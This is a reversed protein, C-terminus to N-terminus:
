SLQVRRALSKPVGSAASSKVSIQRKTALGQKKMSLELRRSVDVKVGRKAGGSESGLTVVGSLRSALSKPKDKAAASAPKKGAGAGQTGEKDMHASTKIPMEM